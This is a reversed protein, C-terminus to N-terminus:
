VEVDFDAPKVALLSCNVRQLVVEATNGLIFGSVGSHALTGMVMLDVQHSGVFAPIVDSPAGKELFIQSERIRDGFPALMSSLQTRASDRAERVLKDFDDRNLQPRLLDEAFVSWAHLVSLEAQERSAIALALEVVASNLQALAPDEVDPDVAAVVQRLPAESGAVLWVPCPCKRLLKIDVLGYHASSTHPRLLVDYGGRVVERIVETAPDGILVNSAVDVGVTDLTEVVSKLALETQSQVMDALKVTGSIQTQGPTTPVVAVITVSGGGERALSLARTLAATARQTPDLHVLVKRFPTM